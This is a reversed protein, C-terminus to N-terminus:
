DKETELGEKPSTIVVPKDIWRLIENDVVMKNNGQNKVVVKLDTGQAGYGYYSIDDDTKDYPTHDALGEQDWSNGKVYKYTIETGEQVDVTYEWDATVAGNRSMEWAGTNWGNMSGPMNVTTNLPTSDPAHVKFTVEVMVIEPTVNVMNSEVANGSKDYLHVQYAYTKGNSVQYDRFTTNTM